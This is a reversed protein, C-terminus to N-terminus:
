LQIPPTSELINSCEDHINRKQGTSELDIRHEVLGFEPLKQKIKKKIFDLIEEFKKNNECAIYNSIYPLHKIFNIMQFIDICIERNQILNKEMGIGDEPSIIMAEIAKQNRPAIINEEIISSEKNECM